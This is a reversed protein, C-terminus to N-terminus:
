VAFAVTVAIISPVPDKPLCLLQKYMTTGNYSKAPAANPGSIIPNSVSVDTLVSMHKRKIGLQIIIIHLNVLLHKGLHM